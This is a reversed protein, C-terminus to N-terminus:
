PNGDDVVITLPNTEIIFRCLADSTSGPTRYSMDIIIQEGLDSPDNGAILANDFQYGIILPNFEDREGGFVFAPSHVVNVPSSAPPSFELDPVCDEPATTSPVDYCFGGLKGANGTVNSWTLSQQTVELDVACNNVLSFLVDSFRNSLKGAVPGLVPALPAICCAAQESLTVQSTFSSTCGSSNTFTATVAYEGPTLGATEWVGTIPAPLPAAANGISAVEVGYPDTIQVFGDFTEAAAEPFVEVYISAQTGIAISQFDYPDMIYIYGGFDCLEGKVIDSMPGENPCDDLAAVRYYYVEGPNLALATTDVFAPAAADTVVTDWNTAASRWYSEESSPEVSAALRYVRYTDVLIQDAPDNTNYTVPAWTLQNVGVSPSVVIGGPKGPTYPTTALGDQNASLPASENGCEDVATIDYYYQRCSVVNTDYFEATGAPLADPEVYNAGASILNGPSAARYLRYGKLDRIKTPEPDCSLSQVNTNVTGWALRIVDDLAANQGGSDGTTILNPVASPTTSDAVTVPTPTALDSVASANGTADEARIRFYYPGGTLGELFVPNTQSTEPSALVTATEGRLITWQSVLETAGPADWSLLVGECQGPCAVLGTPQTPPILDMDPRGVYGANRPTVDQVLSFKRHNRTPTYPDDPDTYNLDPDPTIGTIAAEVRRVSARLEILGVSDSGGIDDSPDGPTEPGLLVNGSDYYRFEVSYINDAVPQRTTTTTGADVSIRYLTYPPDDQVLAINSITVDEAVGDRVTGNVDARFTLSGSSSNDPKALVYTIIEDNGVSVINFPSAGSSLAAEPNASDTPDEFDFDGRFTIATEWAGELQEDPRDAGDPNYNFGLMRLDTMVRDFAIRTSQQVDAANEGLEYSRSLANYLILAVASAVVFVTMAVMIEALTMGSQASKHNKRPSM